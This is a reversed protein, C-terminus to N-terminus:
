KDQKQKHFLITRQKRIYAINYYTVIKDHMQKRFNYKKQYMITTDKIPILERDYRPKIREKKLQYLNKM